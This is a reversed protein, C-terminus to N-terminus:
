PTFTPSAGTKVWMTVLSLRRRGALLEFVAVLTEEGFRKTLLIRPGRGPKQDASELSDPANLLAGLRGFDYATVARQGRTRELEPTGHEAIAHRVAGEEVIYDYLAPKLPQGLAGEIRTTDLTTVLGLTRRPEVLVDPSIPAGGREGQVREVWRRITDATSPADRYGTAIADRTAAPVEHMFNTALSTPWKGAKEALATITNAVTAGPAHDWGRDIGKPAGTRPDPMAWDTPLTKAPDGGLRIAMAMSMAGRVSCGCGWGNPPFHSQWFPHDIPLILGDWALHQLRPHEAHSHRYVLFKFGKANLQAWRGAAYSTSINTKWIVKTRWAEGKATGEGTWGHWGHKEVIARFDRRFVELGTGETLSRDVAGLIDAILDQKIAGAVMGARDHMPGSIDDWRTTGVLNRLRLRFAAVQEDFPRRLLLALPDDAM